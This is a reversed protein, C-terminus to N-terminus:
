FWDAAGIASGSGSVIGIGNGAGAAGAEGGAGAAAGEGTLHRTTEKAAAAKAAMRKAQGPSIFSSPTGTEAGLM